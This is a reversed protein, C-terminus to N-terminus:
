RYRETIVIIEQLLLDYKYNGVPVNITEFGEFNNKCNVMNLVNSLKNYISNQQSSLGKKVDYPKKNKYNRMSSSFLFNIDNYFLKYKEMANDTRVITYKSDRSHLENIVNELYRSPSNNVGNYLNTDRTDRLLNRCNREFSDNYQNSDNVASILETLVEEVIPTCISLCEKVNLNPYNFIFECEGITYSIMCIISYALESLKVNKSNYYVFRFPMGTSGFYKCTLGNQIANCFKLCSVRLPANKDLEHKINNTKLFDIYTEAINYRTRVIDQIDKISGVGQLNGNSLISLLRNPNRVLYHGHEHASKVVRNLNFFKLLNM